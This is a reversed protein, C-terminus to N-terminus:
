TQGDRSSADRIDQHMGRICTLIQMGKGEDTGWEGSTSSQALTVYSVMAVVGSMQVLM